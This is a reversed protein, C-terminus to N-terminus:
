PTLRIETHEDIIILLWKYAMEIVPPVHVHTRVNVDTRDNAM